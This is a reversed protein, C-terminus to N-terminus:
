TEDTYIDIKYVDFNKLYLYEKSKKIEEFVNEDIFEYWDAKDFKANKKDPKFMIDLHIQVYEDYEGDLQRVLSFYLLSEGMFDFIGTEFLIMDTESEVPIRCMKQFVDVLESLTMNLDVSRKLYESLKTNM